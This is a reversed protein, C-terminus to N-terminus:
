CVTVFDKAGYFPTTRLDTRLCMLLALGFFRSAVLDDEPLEKLTHSDYYGRINASYAKGVSKEADKLFQEIGTAVNQYVWWGGSHFRILLIGVSPYYAFANLVSSDLDRKVIPLEQEFPNLDDLPAAVALLKAVANIGYQAKSDNDLNYVSFAEADGPRLPRIALRTGAILSTQHDVQVSERLVFRLHSESNVIEGSM